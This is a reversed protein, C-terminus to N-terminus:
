RGHGRRRRPRRPDPRRRDDPQDAGRLRGGGRVAARQVQGTGPDVDVVCIYAGCPYTLNPPNYVRSADLHGEVGDPLELDSHAALAIEAHDPGPGPRRARVLPGEGVGPRGASVELMAAAVIRARERVKRAVVTAAAAPCRPPGPATPASGSRRRTPTATCWRSTTPPSAWSRRSSRPSRPRTRGAGPDAGLHAAGGHRDPPGAARATPWAWASSTWTSARRM